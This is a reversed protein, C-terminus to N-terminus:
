IWNNFQVLSWQKMNCGHIKWVCDVTGLLDVDRRLQWVDEFVEGFCGDTCLGLIHQQPRCRINGRDATTKTSALSVYSSYEYDPYQLSCLLSHRCAADSYSLADGKWRHMEWKYMSQSYNSGLPEWTIVTTSADSKRWCLLLVLSNSLILIYINKFTNKGKLSATNVAFSM